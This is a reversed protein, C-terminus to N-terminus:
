LRRFAGWYIIGIVIGAGIGSLAGKRGLTLAFPLGLAAMVLSVVPFSLKKYLETQLYGVEFGGRDLDDIYDALELYTMKSTAKVEEDFYEPREGLNVWKQEFTEFKKDLDPNVGAQGLLPLERHWGDELRWQQRQRDWTASQAFTHSALRSEGIDLRYVSLEAFFSREPNFHNYHYLHNDEGFIWRQGPQITQVPRGKIVHRLNEQAKNSVPLINEQMLFIVGSVLVGLLLVPLAVHYISVGCAKLAVLQNTKELSGFTILTAILLSIPVLLMLMHPLLYFFYNLLVGIGIGNRFLDDVLEFFTFLYFLAVATALTASLYLLFTRTM